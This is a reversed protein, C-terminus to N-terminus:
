NHFMFLPKVLTLVFHLIFDYKEEIVLSVLFRKLNISQFHFSCSLFSDFSICM